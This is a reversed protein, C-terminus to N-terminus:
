TELPEQISYPIRSVRSLAEVHKSGLVEFKEAQGTAQKRLKEKEPEPLLLLAELPKLGAPLSWNDPEPQSNPELLPHSNPKKACRKIPRARDM